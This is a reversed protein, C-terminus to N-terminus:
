TKEEDNRGKFVVSSGITVVEIEERTIKQPNVVHIFPNEVLFNLPEDKMAILVKDAGARILLCKYIITSGSCPLKQSFVVTDGCKYTEEPQQSLWWRLDGETKIADGNPDRLIFGCNHCQFNKTTMDRLSEIDRLTSTSNAYYHRLSSGEVEVPTKVVRYENHASVLKRCRCMPCIFQNM